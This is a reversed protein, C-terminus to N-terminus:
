ETRLAPLFDGFFRFSDPVIPAVNANGDAITYGGDLRKRFGVENSWLATTPAGELPATRMVSARVKLQPLRLGLDSCFARSWAGGAVVVSQCAIRGRETVVAAVRGGATELGRVACDTLIAAGARRAAARHRSGGEAARGPWRHRLLARGELIAGAGSILKEIEDSAILRADIQYPQAHELWAEYRAIDADTECARVHHRHHSLRDGGRGDREHAGVHEPKRRDPADRASRPAGQAGLGLQPEVARRRYPGERVLCGVRREPSHLATSTGIIGGGIIVVDVKKPFSAEPALTDVQPGM